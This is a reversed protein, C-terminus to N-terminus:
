YSKLINDDRYIKVSGGELIGEIEVARLPCPFKAVLDVNEAAWIRLDVRDDRTLLIKDM